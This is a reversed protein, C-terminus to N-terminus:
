GHEGTNAEGKSALGYGFQEMWLAAFVTKTDTVEGNRINALLDKRRLTIVDLFEGADPVAGTQTLDRAVFLEIIENSYGICPHTLALHQWDAAVYGTEEKLERKATEIPPEGADIKGAPFEIFHRRLPYRYQRELVYTDDDLMPVIIVAGPHTIYERHSLSGDPLRVTDNLVQLFNGQWAIRSDVTSETLDRGTAARSDPQDVQSM